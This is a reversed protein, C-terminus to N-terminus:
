WHSYSWCISVILNSLIKSNIKLILNIKKKIVLRASEAKEEDAGAKFMSFPQLSAKFIFMLNSFSIYIILYKVIVM